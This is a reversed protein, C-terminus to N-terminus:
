HADDGPSLVAVARDHAEQWAAFKFQQLLPVIGRRGGDRMESIRLLWWRRRVRAGPYYHALDTVHSDGKEVGSQRRDGLGSLRALMLHAIAGTTPSDRVFM